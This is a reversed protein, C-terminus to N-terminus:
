ERKERKAASQSRLGLFDRLRKRLNKIKSDSMLEAEEKVKSRDSKEDKDSSLSSSPSGASPPTEANPAILLSPHLESGLSEMLKKQFSQQLKHLADDQFRCLFPDISMILLRFYLNLGTLSSM